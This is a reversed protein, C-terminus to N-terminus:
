MAKLYNEIHHDNLTHIGFSSEGLQTVPRPHQLELPFLPVPDNGNRYDVGETMLPTHRGYIRPTGFTTVNLIPYGYTLFMAAILQAIAGGASHGTLILHDSVPMRRWAATASIQFGAHIVQLPLTLFNRAWDLVGDTGRFAIITYGDEDTTRFHSGVQPEDFSLPKIYSEACLECLRKDTIM